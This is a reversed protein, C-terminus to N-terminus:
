FHTTELINFINDGKRNYEILLKEIIQERSYISTPVLSLFEQYNERQIRSYMGTVSAKAKDLEKSM